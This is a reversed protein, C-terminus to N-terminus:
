LHLRPGSCEARFGESFVKFTYYTRYGECWAWFCPSNIIKQRHRHDARSELVKKGFKSSKEPRHDSESMNKSIRSVRFSMNINFDGDVLRTGRDAGLPWRVKGFCSLPETLWSWKSKWARITWPNNRFCEVICPIAVALTKAAGICSWM